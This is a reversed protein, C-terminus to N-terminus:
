PSPCRRRCTLCSRVALTVQAEAVAAVAVIVAAPTALPMAGPVVTMETPVMAFPAVIEPLTVSVTVIAGRMDIAMEVIVGEIAFPVM